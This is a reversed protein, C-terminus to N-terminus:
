RGHRGRLLGSARLDLFALTLHAFGKGVEQALRLAKGRTEEQRTDPPLTGDEDAGEDSEADQGGGAIALEIHRLTRYFVDPQVDLAKLLRLLTEHRPMGRGTEYRSLNSRTVAAASAVAECNLGRSRRLVLLALGLSRAEDRDLRGRRM